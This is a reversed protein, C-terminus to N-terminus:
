LGLIPRLIRALPSKFRLKGDTAALCICGESPCAVPKHQTEPDLDAVDGVGYSGTCDTYRGRLVLTLEAGDHGHEPLAKGPAVKILRLDGGADRSLPLPFTWVGPAMWRWAVDDLSSGVVPLLPYPVEPAEAGAAQTAAPAAPIDQEAARAAVVPAGGAVAAPELADFLASGIRQMHGVEARCAPCAALHSAIVAAFAEPQSGAACCMLSAIDPHHTISM